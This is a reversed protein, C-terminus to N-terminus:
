IRQRVFRRGSVKSMEIRIFRDASGDLAWSDLPSARARALEDPDTIEAAVGQVVVSWGVSGDSVYSDVEFAVVAASTAADLKTGPTTRLM